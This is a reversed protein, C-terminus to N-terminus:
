HEHAGYSLGGKQVLQEARVAPVSLGEHGTDQDMLNEIEPVLDDTDLQFGTQYSNVVVTEGYCERVDTAVMLPEMHLKEALAFLESKKM